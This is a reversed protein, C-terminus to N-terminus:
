LLPSPLTMKERWAKAAEATILTRRGVKMIAPAKKDRLLNYFTARSLNHAECFQLISYALIEQSVHSINTKTILFLIQQQSNFIATRELIRM